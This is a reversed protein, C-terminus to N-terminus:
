GKSEVAAAPTRSWQHKNEGSRGAGPNGEDFTPGPARACRVAGSRESVPDQKCSTALYRWALVERQVFSNNDLIMTSSPMLFPQEAPKAMGALTVREILFQESPMVVLDAKEPTIGHWEYRVLDGGTSLKLEANQSGNEPGTEAKLQSTIFSGNANKQVSFKETAVRRGNRLVAFSGSDVNEATDKDKAYLGAALGVVLSLGTVALTRLAVGTEGGL